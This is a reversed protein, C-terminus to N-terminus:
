ARVDPVDGAGRDRASMGAYLDVFAGRTVRVRVREGPQFRTLPLQIVGDRSENAKIREIEDPRVVAPRDGSRIVNIVGYTSLLCRWQDVISVFLYGPFLPVTRQSRRSPRCLPMYTQFGQREVHRVARAALPSHVQAAAWFAMVDDRRFDAKARYARLSDGRL